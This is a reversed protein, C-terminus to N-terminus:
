IRQLLNFIDSFLDFYNTVSDPLQKPGDYVRHPMYALVLDHRSTPVLHLMACWFPAESIGLSHVAGRIKLARSQNRSHSWYM